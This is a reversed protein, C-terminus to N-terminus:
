PLFAPIQVYMWYDPKDVIALRFLHAAFTWAAPETLERFPPNEYTGRAAGNFFKTHDHLSFVKMSFPARSSAYIRNGFDTYLDSLKSATEFSNDAHRVAGAVAMTYCHISHKQMAVLDSKSDNIKDANWTTDEDIKADFTQALRYWTEWNEANFDLDLKLFTVANDLDDSTDPTLRKQTKYKMLLIYGLQFFWGKRAVVAYETNIPMGTLGGIGRLSRYLNVPNIPSKFFSIAIRRNFAQHVSSARPTGVIAQIKEIAIKLDSKLLDRINFKRAQTMVFDIIELASSRDIQDGTCGHENLDSSNQCVKLGYLDYLVQSMESESIAPVHLRLLETKMFKLFSKKGVRCFDRSSFASHTATLYEVLDEDLTTFSKPDQSAAERLLLYLLVWLKPQIERMFNMASRYTVAAGSPQQPAQMQGVRLADEWQAYVHFLKTMEVCSKLAMGLHDEDMCDLAKLSGRVLDLCHTALDALNRMWVVLNATRDERSEKVYTPSQLELLIINMCRINCLFVMPPFDIAEYATKLRHWLSLRLSANAKDLFDSMQHEYSKAPTRLSSLIPPMADQMEVEDDQSDKIERMIEEDPQLQKTVTKLGTRMLVPELSEIVAVPEEISPDFISLFFDMTTLKSIEREAAEPSVEPMIANNQLEIPSLDLVELMLKIDKLCLLVHDRSAAEVLSVYIVSSWLHRFALNRVAAAEGDPQRSMANSSLAAWRRLRDRQTTRTPQDVKSSPATIKGYVDLHLEFITQALEITAEMEHQQIVARPAEGPTREDILSVQKEVASFVTEDEEVLIQSLTDKLSVPWAYQMYKSGISQSSSSLEEAGMGHNLTSPRLLAEIWLTSLQDLDNWSENNLRVFELIGQDFLMNESTKRSGTKSHELFAALGSDNGRGLLTVSAGSGTGHVLLNSKNPDWSCLTDKFDKFFTANDEAVIFGGADDDLSSAQTQNALNNSFQVGAKTCLEHVVSFLWRDAQVCPQLLEEFHKTLDKPDVEEDANVEARARLRKSRSRGGEVSDQIGALDSNRKLTPKADTAQGCSTGAAKTRDLPDSTKINNTTSPEFGIVSVESTTAEKDVLSTKHSVSGEKTSVDIMTIEDSQSECKQQSAPDPLARSKFLSEASVMKKHKRSEATNYPAHTQENPLKLEYRNGFETSSDNRMQLKRQELILKGIGTWTCEPLDLIKSEGRPLSQALLQQPSNPLEPFPDMLTKLSKAIKKRSSIPSDMQIQSLEDQLTTVLETLEERAFVEDLGDSEGDVRSKSDLVAELSFRTLRQSGLYGSIRSTRRWLDFDTEDRDLAEAFLELSESAASRAEKGGHLIRADEENPVAVRYILRDLLFQGHNKYSLYLIQPLSNPAADNSGVPPAAQGIEYDDYDSEDANDKLALRKALSQSEPYSFIESDFLAEYAQEAESFFHPGQSHLKLANQYLKM